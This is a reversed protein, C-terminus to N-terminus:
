PTDLTQMVEVFDKWTKQAGFLQKAHPFLKVDEVADKITPWNVRKGDRSRGVGDVLADIKDQLELSM